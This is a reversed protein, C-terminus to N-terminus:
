HSYLPRSAFGPDPVETQMPMSPPDMRWNAQPVAQGILHLLGHLLSSHLGLQCSRGSAGEGSHDQFIVNLTGSANLNLQVDTVLIPEEGLPLQPTQSTFPTKFDAKELFTERQLETLLHQAAPDAVVVQPNRTELQVVCAQLHPLLRGTLRRTLWLRFEQGDLTNVRLMLRDHREAYNVSLQHINM